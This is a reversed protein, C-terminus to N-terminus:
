RAQNDFKIGKKKLIEPLDEFPRWLLRLHLSKDLLKCEGDLKCNKCKHRMCWDYEEFKNM